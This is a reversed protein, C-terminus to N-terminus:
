WTLFAFSEVELQVGNGPQIVPYFRLLKQRLLETTKQKESIPHIRFLNQKYVPWDPFATRDSWGEGAVLYLM